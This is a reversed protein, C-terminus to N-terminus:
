EPEGYGFARVYRDLVPLAPALQAEYRRWRALSSRYLPQSVAAFSPTAIYRGKAKEHFAEVEPRWDLGLLEFVRRFTAEFDEVTDEYRLELWRPRVIDRLGLWLDMIAAYQRAIGDLTLLNVTVAAPQFVQFYCSVAVDRPDRLAFLLRAEPFITGIFGIDISNMAVKDIFCKRLAEPGYEGDVRRWYMRRLARAEDLGIKRLGAPVDGGCGSLRGLEATLGNVLGNEDSTLVGPHASLVQETLTTGSRLFGLLFAPAPLGDAFDEPAWRHLLERDFGLRNREINRFVEGADQRRFEPSERYRAKARGAAEFAPGYEGLRDLVGALEQQARATQAPDRGAAVIGELRARAEALRGLRVEVQALLNQCAPNDPLRRCASEALPLAEEARNVRLLYLALNNRAAPAEPALRVALRALELSTELDGWHHLQEALELIRRIDRTKEADRRLRRAARRLHELGERRRESWCLAQGLGALAEAHEPQVALVERFGRLTGEMDRRAVAQWARELLAKVDGNPGPPPVSPSNLCCAKYKKGSGCPCPDNRGAKGAPAPPKASM